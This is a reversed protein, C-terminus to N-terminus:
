VNFKDILKWFYLEKPINKIIDKYEIHNPHTPVHVANQAYIKDTIHSWQDYLTYVIDDLGLEDIILEKFKIIERFNDNQVTFNAIIKPRNPLELLWKINDIVKNWNSGLRIKEHTEKTAADLSIDILEVSPLIKLKPLVARMSLGNTKFKYRHLPNYELNTILNVTALSYFPDGTGGFHILAEKNYNNILNKIHKHIEIIQNLIWQSKSISFEPDPIPKNYDKKYLRCSPCLLNCSDDVGIIINTEKPREKEEVGWLTGINHELINSEIINALNCGDTDCYDYTRANITKIIEKVTSTHWLEEFSNLDLVNAVIYPLFNPCSCSYIFGETSINIVVSPKICRLNNPHKKISPLNRQRRLLIDKSNDIFM